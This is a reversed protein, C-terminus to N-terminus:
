KFRIVNQTHSHHTLLLVNKEYASKLKLYDYAGCHSLYVSLGVTMVWNNTLKKDIIFHHREPMLVWKELLDDDISLTKKGRDKVSDFRLAEHVYHLKHRNSTAFICRKRSVMVIRKLYNRKPLEMMSSCEVYVVRGHMPFITGYYNKTFVMADFNELGTRITLVVVHEM